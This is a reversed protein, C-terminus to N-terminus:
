KQNLNLIAPNMVLTRKTPPKTPMARNPLAAGFGRNQITPIVINPNVKSEVPSISKPLVAGIGPNDITPTLLNPELNNDINLINSPIETEDIDNDTNIKKINEIETKNKKWRFYIITAIIGVAILIYPYYKKNM